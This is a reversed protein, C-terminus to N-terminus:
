NDSGYEQKLKQLEDASIDLTDIIDDDPRNKKFLKFAIKKTKEWEGERMGEKRGEKIGEKRGEKIGEAKSERRVDRTYADLIQEDDFLAFMIDRVEREHKSLYERLINENKCIRLTESVAEQSKGHKQIQENYIKTFTVYQNLIDGQKGDTLVRVKVELASEEGDFFEESLTIYSKDIRKDGTYIVYLEPKPINIKKSGYVNLKENGIYDQYTQVLYMLGRIIINVTWTSQAEVLVVLKKGVTFGLDNYINDVLINKLTVIEIMEETVNEDEPHLARYLEVVYKPDQFLNTFVNDKANRKVLIKGM